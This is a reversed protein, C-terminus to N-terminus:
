HKNSARPQVQAGGGKENRIFSEAAMRLAGRASVEPLSEDGGEAVASDVFILTMPERKGVLLEPIISLYFLYPNKVLRSGYFLAYVAVRYEGVGRMVVETVPLSGFEAAQAGSSVARSHWASGLLTTNPLYFLPKTVYSRAAFLRVSQNNEADIYTREVWDGTSFRKEAWKDGRRPPVKADSFRASDLSILKVKADTLAPRAHYFNFYTPIFALILVISAAKLYRVSFIM